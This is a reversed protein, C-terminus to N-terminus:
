SLVERLTEALGANIATKGREMKGINNASNRSWGVAEAVDALSMEAKRRLRALEAASMTPKADIIEKSRGISPPNLGGELFTWYFGNKSTREGREVYGAKEWANLCRNLYQQSVKCKERIEASTMPHRARKLRSWIIQANPHERASQYHGPKNKQQENM